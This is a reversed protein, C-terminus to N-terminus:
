VGFQKLHHDIHKYQMQGRQHTTFHGFIPHEPWNPNDKKDTFENVLNILNDKETEFVQSETIVFEKATGINRKWPKDNYMMPKFLKFIIKTFFGAKGKMERKGLAVQMPLQCHKLMQGVNMKGWNATSSENLNEIRNLIDQHTKSDFLSKM